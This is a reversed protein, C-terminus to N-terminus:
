HSGSGVIGTLHLVVMAIVVAIILIAILYTRSHRAPQPQHGREM